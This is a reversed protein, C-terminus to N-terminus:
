LSEAAPVPEHPEQPRLCPEPLPQAHPHDPQVLAQRTEELMPRRSSLRRNEVMCLTLRLMMRPGRWPKKPSVFYFSCNVKDLETGFISALFSAMTSAHVRTDWLLHSAVFHTHSPEIHSHHPESTKRWSTLITTASNTQGFVRLLFKLPSLHQLSNPPKRKLRAGCNNLLAAGRSPWM